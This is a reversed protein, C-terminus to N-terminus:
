IHSMRRKRRRVSKRRKRVSKRTSKMSKRRRVSRSKRSKRRTRRGDTRRGFAAAGISTKASPSFINSKIPAGTMMPRSQANGKELIDCNVQLSTIINDTNNVDWQINKFCQTNDVNQTQFENLQQQLKEGTAILQKMTQLDEKKPFYETHYVGCGLNSAQLNFNNLARSLEKPYACSM